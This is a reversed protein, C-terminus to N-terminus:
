AHRNGDGRRRVWGVVGGLACWLVGFAVSLIAVWGAFPIHDRGRYIFSWFPSSDKYIMAIRSILVHTIYVVTSVRGAWPAAWRLLAPARAMDPFAHSLLLLEPVVLLMGLPLNAKGAGFWQVLSLAFGLLIFGVSRRPTWRWAAMLRARHEHLFLGLLFMPLGLYLGNRFTISDLQAEGLTNFDCFTDLYVGVGLLGAGAAYLPSFRPTEEQYFRVYLWLVLYCFVLASLFWLHFMFPSEGTILVKALAQLTLTKKLYGAIEWGKARVEWCEFLLYLLNAGLMLRLSHLLRQFLREAGAGFAYYGSIAFFLPVGCRALCKAVGGATGAMPIHIFVVLVAAGLKIWELSLNRQKRM